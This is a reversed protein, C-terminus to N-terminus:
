PWPCYPPFWAPDRYSLEIPPQVRSGVNDNSPGRGSTEDGCAPIAHSHHFGSSTNPLM